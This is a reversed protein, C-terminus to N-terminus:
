QHTYQQIKIKTNLRNCKTQNHKDHNPNPNTAHKNNHKISQMKNQQTKNHKISQMKNQQTKKNDCKKKNNHKNNNCQKKNNRKNIANQKITNLALTQQLM